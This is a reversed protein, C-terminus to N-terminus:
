KLEKLYVKNFLKYIKNWLSNLKRRNKNMTIKDQRKIPGTLSNKPNELINNFTKQLYPFLVEEPLALDEKFSKFVKSWLISSFNGSIVCLAHYYGKLNKDIKYYANKLNPFINYFQNTKESGIFPINRYEELTYLNNGFTMLPHFGLVGKISLAGSFHILTKSRISLNEKLFEEISDDSILLLITKCERLKDLSEGRKWRTHSIGELDLYNSFHKAMAGNGVIGYIQTEM